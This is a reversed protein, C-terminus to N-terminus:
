IFQYAAHVENAVLHHQRKGECAGDVTGVQGGASREDLSELIEQHVVAVSRSHCMRGFDRRCLAFLEAFEKAEGRLDQTGQGRERLVVLGDGQRTRRPVALGEGWVARKVFFKFLREM